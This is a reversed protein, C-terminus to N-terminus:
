GLAWSQTESSSSKDCAWWVAMECPWGGHGFGEFCGNPLSPGIHASMDCSGLNICWSHVYYKPKGFNLNSASVLPLPFHHQSLLFVLREFSWGQSLLHTLGQALYIPILTRDPVPPGTQSVPSEPEHRFPPWPPCESTWLLVSPGVLWQVQERCSNMGLRVTVIQGLLPTLPVSARHILEAVLISLPPGHLAKTVGSTFTCPFVLITRHSDWVWVLPVSCKKNM